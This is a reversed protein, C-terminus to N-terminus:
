VMLNGASAEDATRCEDTFFVSHCGCACTCLHTVCPCLVVVRLGDQLRTGSLCSSSSRLDVPVAGRGRECCFSTLEFM